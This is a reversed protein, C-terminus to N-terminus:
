RRRRVALGVLGIGLLLATAPEPVIRVLFVGRDVFTQNFDNSLLQAVRADGSGGNLSSRIYEPSVLLSGGVTNQAFGRGFYNQGACLVGSSTCGLQAILLNAAPLDVVLAGAVLDSFGADIFLQTVQADTALTYTPNAATAANVSSGLTVTLDLWELNTATDVMSSGNDILAASAQSAVLLAWIGVLPWALPRARAATRM